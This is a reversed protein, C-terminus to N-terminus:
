SQSFEAFTTEDKSEEEKASFLSSISALLGSHVFEHNTLSQQALISAIEPVTTEYDKYVRQSIAKLGDFL